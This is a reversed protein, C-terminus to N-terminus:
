GVNKRSLSVPHRWDFFHLKKIDNTHVMDEGHFGLAIAMLFNGVRWNEEIPITVSRVFCIMHLDLSDDRDTQSVSFSM